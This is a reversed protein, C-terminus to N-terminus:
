AAVRRCLMRGLRHIPRASKLYRPVLPLLWWGVSARARWDGNRLAMLLHRARTGEHVASLAHGRGSAGTQSAGAYLREVFSAPIPADLQEVLYGITVSLPLELHSRRVAAFLREWDVDPYKHITFWSDFVWLLSERSRSFFAEGCVQLLTETPSLVRVPVGAIAQIQSQMWLDDFSVSYYTDQFLALHLHLPLGSDHKLAVEKWERGDVEGLQSFGLSLLSTVAASSGPGNILVDISGCHRLSPSAYVTDALAAGRFVIAPIRQTAYGTLVQTLIKRYASTRLEERLAAIHLCTQLTAEVVVDHGRTAAFILPLLGKLSETGDRLLPIPDGVRDQWAKWAERGSEGPWLCARLLLTEEPTPLLGAFVHLFGPKKVVDRACV